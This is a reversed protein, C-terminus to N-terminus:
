DVNKVPWCNNRDRGERAEGYRQLSKWWLERLDDFRPQCVALPRGPMMLMVLAGFCCSMRRKASTTELGGNGKVGKKVSSGPLQVAGQM